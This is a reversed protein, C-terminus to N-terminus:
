PQGDSGAGFHALVADALGAFDDLVLDAGLERAPPDSYGHSFLIAAVGAARAAQLDNISDGVMLACRPAHPAIAALVHAADPKRAAVDEPCVIADFGQALDLAQLLKHTLARPKNTCIRLSAGASRLERLCGPAGAFPQSHDSLHASYHRLFVELRGHVEGTGPRVKSRAFAREIMAQAGQGILPRVDGVSITQVASGELCVNLARVLDPATDVLTGDLDFAIAHGHLPM